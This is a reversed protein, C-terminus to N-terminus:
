QAEVQPKDQTEALTAKKFQLAPQINHLHTGFELISDQASERIVGIPDRGQAVAELSEKILQRFMAIGKDSPALSEISRDLIPGQGELAMRDQSWSEVGWWDPDGAPYKGPETPIWSGRGELEPPAETKQILKGDDSPYLTLFFNLETTEDQPTRFVMNQRGGLTASQETRGSAFRNFSPFIISGFNEAPLEPYSIAYDIGYDRRHWEVKPTRASYMPYPGAHLWNLHTMDASNEACQLWSCYQTYGWLYRTGSEACLLDYKPLLPAPKPGIYAFVIGAAEQVKYATMSVKDKLTSDPEECPTELCQGDANWLWGHYCCRIGNKEVRGHAMSTRRHACLLELMGLRSSGDRFLILDEALLRVQKPRKGQIDDSFAIPWWYHRLLDGMPTGRAVQTWRENELKTTM